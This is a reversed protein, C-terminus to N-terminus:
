RLVIFLMKIILVMIITHVQKTITIHQAINSVAKMLYDGGVTDVNGDFGATNILNNESLVYTSNPRITSELSGYAGFAWCTNLDGQDKISSVKGYNRLDYSSPYSISSNTSWSGDQPKNTTTKFAAVWDVEVTETNTLVAFWVPKAATPAYGYQSIPGQVDDEDYRDLNSNVYEVSYTHWVNRGSPIFDSTPAGDRPETESYGRVGTGGSPAFSIIAFGDPAPNSDEFGARAWTGTGTTNLAM